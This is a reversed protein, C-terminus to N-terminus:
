VKLQENEERLVKLQAAFTSERFNLHEKSRAADLELRHVDDASKSLQSRLSGIQLVTPETKNLPLWVWFCPFLKDQLVYAM